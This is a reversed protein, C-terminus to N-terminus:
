SAKISNRNFDIIICLINIYINISTTFLSLRRIDYNMSRIIYGGFISSLESKDKFKSSLKNIRDSVDGITAELKNIINPLKNHAIYEYRKTETDIKNIRDEVINHKITDTDLLDGIENLENAVDDHLKNFREYQGTNYESVDKNNFERICRDMTTGKALTEEIKDIAKNLRDIDDNEIYKCKYLKDVEEKEVSKSSNYKKNKLIIEKIKKIKEKFWEVFRDWLKKAKKIIEKIDFAEQLLEVNISEIMYDFMYAEDLFSERFISM